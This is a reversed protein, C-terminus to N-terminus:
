AAGWPWDGLILDIEDQGTLPFVMKMRTGQLLFKIFNVSNMYWVIAKIPYQFLYPPNHRRRTLLPFPAPDPKFAPM